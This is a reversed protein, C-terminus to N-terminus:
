LSPPIDLIRVALYLSSSAKRYELIPQFEIKTAKALISPNYPLTDMVRGIEDSHSIPLTYYLM